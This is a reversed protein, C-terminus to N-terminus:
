SISSEPVGYMADPGLIDPHHPRAARRVEDCLHCADAFDGEVPVDFAAALAAPGGALIPGVVPHERPRYSVVIERLPTRFVNGISIGQCVHVNGAPDIHVRGPEDLREHPCERLSTGPVLDSHDVRDVLRSAARGRFTLTAADDLTGEGPELVRITGTPIGLSAAAARIIGSEEGSLGCREHLRDASVSLDQVHGALPELWARADDEDVAWYGNTVIGVRHGRASAARVGHVLVPYCLFPEGGEFYVSDVTGLDDGQDLIEEVERATMAGVHRASGWVFCHDCELVCRQTLLLHLGTIKM